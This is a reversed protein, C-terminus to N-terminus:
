LQVCLYVSMLTIFHRRENTSSLQCTSLVSSLRRVSAFKKKIFGCKSVYSWLVDGKIKSIGSNEELVIYSLGVTAETGFRARDM